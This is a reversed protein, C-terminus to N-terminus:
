VFMQAFSLVITLFATLQANLCIPLRLRARFLIAMWAASSIQLSSELLALHTAESARRSSVM